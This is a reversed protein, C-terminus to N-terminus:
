VNRELADLDTPQASVAPLEAVNGGLAKDVASGILKRGSDTPHVYINMTTSLQAHGLQQQLVALPVASDVAMTAYWHRLDHLRITDFGHEKRFRAWTVNLSGPSRPVSGDPAARWNAFVWPSTGIAEVYRSQEALLANGTVGLEIDRNRKGKTEKVTLPRGAPEVVSHRVTMVGAHEDWDAWRLGVVEGRRLGTCMLLEICRSWEARGRVSAATEGRGIAVRQAGTRLLEVARAIDVNSPPVIAAQSHVPPTAQQTAVRPLDQKRNGYMLVMRLHKAGNAVTAKSAGATLQEDYWDDIMAGTLKEAKVTGFRATIRKAWFEYGYMTTPSREQRNKARLWDDVLKGVTGVGLAGTTLDQELGKAIPPAARKAATLNNAEFSRTRQQRKGRIPELEIRVRWRKGGLHQLSWPVSM